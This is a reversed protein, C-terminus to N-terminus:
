LLPPLKLIDVGILKLLFLSFIIFVLGSVAATITEGGEKVKEPDGSSTIIKFGGVLILLFAIGGGLKIAWGLLWATFGKEDTPVIGLATSVQALASTPKILSLLIFSLFGLKVYRSKKM